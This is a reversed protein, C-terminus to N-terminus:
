LGEVQITMYYGFRMFLIGSCVYQFQGGNNPRGMFHNGRLSCKICLWLRKWMLLIVMLESGSALVFFFFAEHGVDFRLYEHAHSSFGSLGSLWCYQFYWFRFDMLVQYLSFASDWRPNIRRTAAKWAPWTLRWGVLISCRPGRHVQHVRQGNRPLRPAFVPRSRNATALSMRYVTALGRRPLWGSNRQYM